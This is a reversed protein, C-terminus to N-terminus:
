ISQLVFILPKFTLIPSYMCYKGKPTQTVKTHNKRGENM